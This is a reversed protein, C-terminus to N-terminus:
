SSDESHSNKCSKSSQNKLQSLKTELHSIRSELALVKEQSSLFQNAFSDSRDSQNKLDKVLKAILVSHQNAAEKVGTDVERIFERQEKEFM